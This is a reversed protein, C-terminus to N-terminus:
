NKKSFINEAVKIDAPYTVNLYEGKFFVAKIKEGGKIMKQIVDTIEIENRLKSPKTIKIYDFVKKNFFYCGMGCLNGFSKKPKEKAEVVLNNNTKVSYGRKIDEINDTRWVGIGQEMSGTFQFKGKVLCDGLAVIFKESVLNKARLIADAIGKSEKQEVFQAKISLNSVFDIIQNKQPGVVFVFNDTYEKWYDIIYALMPKGMIKVMMKPEKSSCPLLRRGRGACPVVCKLQNYDLFYSGM